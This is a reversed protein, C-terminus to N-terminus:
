DLRRDTACFTGRVASTVVRFIDDSVGGGGRGTDNSSGAVGGGESDSFILAAREAMIGSSRMDEDSSM